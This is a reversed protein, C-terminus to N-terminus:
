NSGLMRQTKAKTLEEIKSIIRPAKGNLIGNEYLDKALATCIEIAQISVCEEYEERFFYYGHKDKDLFSDLGSIDLHVTSSLQRYIVHYMREFHGCQIGLLKVDDCRKAKQDLPLNKDEDALQNSSSVLEISSDIDSFAKNLYQENFLNGNESSSLSPCIKILNRVGAFSKKLQIFRDRVSIALRRESDEVQHYIINIHAEFLCRLLASAANYKGFSCLIIIAKTYNFVPRYTFYLYNQLHTGQCHYNQLLSDLQRNLLYFRKIIRWNRILFGIKLM